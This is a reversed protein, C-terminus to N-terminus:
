VDYPFFADEFHEISIRDQILTIAIIDFRIDTEMRNQEIYEQAARALFRQKKEDVQVEPFGFYNSSRTKVEAFIITNGLRAIIDIEYRGSRWNVEKISYGKTELYKVALLEGKVGTENHQAM